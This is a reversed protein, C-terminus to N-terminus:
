EPGSGFSASVPVRNGRGLLAIKMLGPAGLALPHRADARAVEAAPDANVGASARSSKM